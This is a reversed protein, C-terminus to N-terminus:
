CFSVDSNPRETPDEGRALPSLTARRKRREERHPLRMVEQGFSRPSARLSKRTRWTSLFAKPKARSV